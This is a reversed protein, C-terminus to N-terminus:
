YHITQPVRLSNGEAELITRIETPVSMDASMLDEVYYGQDLSVKFPQLFQHARGKDPMDHSYQVEFQLYLEDITNQTRDDINRLVSNFAEDFGKYQQSPLYIKTSFIGSEGSSLSTILNGSDKKFLRNQYNPEEISYNIGETGLEQAYLHATVSLEKALGEGVNKLELSVTDGDPDIDHVNLHPEHEAEQIEKQTDQLRAQQAQIGSMNVYLLALVFSSIGPVVVELFSVSSADEASIPSPLYQYLFQPVPSPIFPYIHAVFLAAAGIGALLITASVIYRARHGDM